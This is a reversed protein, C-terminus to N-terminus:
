TSSSTSSTSSSSTSSSSSPKIKPIYESLRPYGENYKIIEIHQILYNLTRNDNLVIVNFRITYFYKGFKSPFAGIYMSFFLDLIQKGNLQSQSVIPHEKDIWMTPHELIAVPTNSTCTLTLQGNIISFMISQELFKECIMTTPHVLNDLKILELYSKPKFCKLFLEPSIHFANTTNTGVLPLASVFLEPEFEKSGFEFSTAYSSPNAHHIHSEEKDCNDNIISLIFEEPTLCSEYGSNFIMNNFNSLRIIITPNYYYYFHILPVHLYIEPKRGSTIFNSSNPTYYSYPTNYFKVYCKGNYCPPYTKQKTIAIHNEWKLMNENNEKQLYSRYCNLLDTFGDYLIGARTIKTESGIYPILFEKFQGYILNVQTILNIIPNIYQGDVIGIVKLNVLLEKLENENTINNGILFPFTVPLSTVISSTSM